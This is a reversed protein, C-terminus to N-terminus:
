TTTDYISQVTARAATLEAQAKAVAKEASEVIYKDGQERARALAEEAQAMAFFAALQASEADYYAADRRYLALAERAGREFQEPSQWDLTGHFVERRM